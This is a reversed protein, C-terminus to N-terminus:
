HLVSSGLPVIPAETACLEALYEAFDHHSVIRGGTPILSQSTMPAANQSRALAPPLGAIAFVILMRIAAFEFVRKM